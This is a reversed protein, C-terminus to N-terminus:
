NKRKLLEIEFKKRVLKFKKKCITGSFIKTKKIRLTLLLKEHVVKEIKIKKERVSQFLSKFVISIKIFIKTKQSINEGRQIVIPYQHSIKLVASLLQIAIPCRLYLPYCDFLLPITM